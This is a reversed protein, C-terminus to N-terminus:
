RLSRVSVPLPRHLGASPAGLKAERLRLYASPSSDVVGSILSNSIQRVKRSLGHRNVYGVQDYRTQEGIIMSEVDNLHKTILSFITFHELARDKPIAHFLKTCVVIEDRPLDLKKIARGLIIESEGNSYVQM